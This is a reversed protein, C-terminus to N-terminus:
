GTSLQSLQSIHSIRSNPSSPSQQRDCDGEHDDPGSDSEMDDISLRTRDRAHSGRRFLNVFLDEEDFDEDGMAPVVSATRQSYHTLRSRPSQADDVRQPDPSPTPENDSASSGDSGDLDIPHFPPLILHIM